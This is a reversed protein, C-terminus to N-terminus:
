KVLISQVTKLLQALKKKARSFAKAIVYLQSLALTLCDPLVPGLGAVNAFWNL